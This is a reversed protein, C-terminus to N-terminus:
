SRCLRHRDRSMTLLGQYSPKMARRYLRPRKMRAYVALFAARAAPDRYFRSAYTQFRDWLLAALYVPYVSESGEEVNPSFDGSGRGCTPQPLKCDTECGSTRSSFTSDAMVDEKYVGPALCHCRHTRRALAEHGHLRSCMKCFKDMGRAEPAFLSEDGARREVGDRPSGWGDCSTDEELRKTRQKSELPEDRRRPADIEEPSLEAPRQVGHRYLRAGSVTM